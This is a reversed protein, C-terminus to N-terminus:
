PKRLVVVGYSTFTPIPHKVLFNAEANHIALIPKIKEYYGGHGYLGVYEEIEFGVSKLRALQKQTPGTTWQYYAPFKAFRGSKKRYPTLALLVKEAFAEPTLKNILFPFAWLTPFFHIAIGGPALLDFVNQHFQRADKVHEALMKSFALEFGGKVLQVDKTIDAEVKHYDIPAKALEEGSIDLVTYDLNLERVMEVPIVPNAGGGIDLIRKIGRSRITDNIRRDYRAWADATLEYRVAM